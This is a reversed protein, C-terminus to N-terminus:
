EWESRLRELYGAEYAGTLAGAFPALPDDDRVLRIEGAGNVNVALVDGTRLGAEKLIRVPITVQHKSSLKTRSQKVKAM